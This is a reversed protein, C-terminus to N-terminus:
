AQLIDAAVGVRDGQLAKNRARETLTQIVQVSRKRHPLSLVDKAVPSYKGGGRSRRRTSRSRSRRRRRHTNRRRHKM